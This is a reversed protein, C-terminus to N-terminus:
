RQLSTTIPAWSPITSKYHQKYTSESCETNFGLMATPVGSEQVLHNSETILLCLTVLALFILLVAHVSFCAKFDSWTWSLHYSMWILKAAHTHHICWSSNGTGYGWLLNVHGHSNVSKELLHPMWTLTLSLVTLGTMRSPIHCVSFAWSM